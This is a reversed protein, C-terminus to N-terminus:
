AGSAASESSLAARLLGQLQATPHFQLSVLGLRVVDGATLAVPTSGLRVENVRTGNASGADAILYRDGDVTIRAHLKSVHSQPIVVDNSPARGVRISAGLFGGLGHRRLPWCLMDLTLGVAMLEAPTTRVALSTHFMWRDSPEEPICGVLMAGGLVTRTLETRHLLVRQVETLPIPGGKM